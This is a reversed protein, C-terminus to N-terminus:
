QLLVSLSCCSILNFLHTTPAYLQFPALGLAAIRRRSCLFVSVVGLVYSRESSLAKSLCLRM